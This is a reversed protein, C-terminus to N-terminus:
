AVLEERVMDRTSWLVPNIRYVRFASLANDSVSHETDNLFVYASTEGMRAKKTDEWAFVTREVNMRDPRNVSLLIREPRNKSKPIVFDFLYDFGSMGNFKVKPTFRINLSELWSEVDAFFFSTIYSSNLYFLDNVALMAQLLNHKRLAFDKNTANVHLENSESEKNVGFGRLTMALENQRKKSNLNFGSLELDNITHGDDTLVYGENTRKVYIQLYDNHRDLFPTTIEVWDKLERLVTKDKLWSFYQEKLQQVEAIM